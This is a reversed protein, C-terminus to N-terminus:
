VIRKTPLTLHTYSVSAVADMRLDLCLENVLRRIAKSKVGEMYDHELYWGKNKEMESLAYVDCLKKLINKLEADETDAVKYVFQELIVREIYAKGVNLLHYQCQNFANFSDM